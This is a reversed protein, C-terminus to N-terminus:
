FPGKSDRATPTSGEDPNMFRGGPDVDIYSLRDGFGPRPIPDKTTCRPAQGGSDPDSCRCSMAKSDAWFPKLHLQSRSRTSRLTRTSLNPRFLAELRRNRPCIRHRDTPDQHKAPTARVEAAVKATTFSCLGGRVVAPCSLPDSKQHGVLCSVTGCAHLHLLHPGPTTLKQHPLPGSQAGIEALFICPAYNSASFCCTPPSTGWKEPWTQIDVPGM